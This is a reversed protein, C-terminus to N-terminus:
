QLKPPVQQNAYNEQHHCEKNGIDEFHRREQLSADILGEPFPGPNSESEAEKQPNGQSGQEKAKM